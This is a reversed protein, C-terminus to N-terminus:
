NPIRLQSGVVLSDPDKVTGRNAQYIEKWRGGDHLMKQAINYLTDGEKVTYTSTTAAQPAAHQAAPAPTNSPVVAQDTTPLKLEIGVPLAAASKLRDRNAQFLDRWRASSGLHRAALSSLTDGSAVKILKPQVQVPQPQVPRMVDTVPVAPGESPVPVFQADLPLGARNPIVLRVNEKVEGKPGVANPNHQAIAHWYEGNNYYRQAIKYLNEGKQVYHILPSGVTPAAALTQPTAPGIGSVDTATPIPQPQQAIPQQGNLLITPIGDQQQSVTMGPQPETPVTPAAPTVNWAQLPPQPAIAGDEHQPLWNPTRLEEPTPVVTRRTSVSQAEDTRSPVGAFEDDVAEISNQAQEAYVTFDAPTQNNVVSLQDSVIIGILLILALGGLLGLKTERTM